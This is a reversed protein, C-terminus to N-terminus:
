TTSASRPLADYLHKLERTIPGPLPASLTRGDIASVLTAGGFTGTFFAEDADYVESLAFDGETAPTGADRCVALVKGRTVGKFNYRGTSTKM